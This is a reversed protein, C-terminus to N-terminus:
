GEAIGCFSDSPQPLHKNANKQQEREYDADRQLASGVKSIWITSNWNKSSKHSAYYALASAVHKELFEQGYKKLWIEKTVIPLDKLFKATTDDAGTSSQEGRNEEVEVRPGSAPQGSAPRTKSSIADKHRVESLKPFYIHILKRDKKFEIHLQLQMVTLFCNLKRQTITLFKKLELENVVFKPESCGDWKDSLYEVFRFYLAYAENVSFDNSLHQLVSGKHANTYHKFWKM